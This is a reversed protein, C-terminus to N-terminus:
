GVNFSSLKRMQIWFGGDAYTVRGEPYPYVQSITWKEEYDRVAVWEGETYTEGNWQFTKPPGPWNPDPITEGQAIPYLLVRSGKESRGDLTYTLTGGQCSVRIPHIDDIINIVEVEGYRIDWVKDRVKLIKTLDEM